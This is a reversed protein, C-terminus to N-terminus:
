GGPLEMMRYFMRELTSPGSPTALELSLTKPHFGGGECGVFGIVAFACVLKPLLRM